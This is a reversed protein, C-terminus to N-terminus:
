MVKTVGPFEKDLVKKVSVANSQVDELSDFNYVKM